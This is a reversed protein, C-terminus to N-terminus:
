VSGGGNFVGGRGGNFATKVDDVAAVAAVVATTAAVQM